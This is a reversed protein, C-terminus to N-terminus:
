LIVKIEGEIRFFYPMGNSFTFSFSYEKSWSINIVCKLSVNSTRHEFGLKFLFLNFGSVLFIFPQWTKFKNKGQLHSLLCALENDCEWEAIVSAEVM